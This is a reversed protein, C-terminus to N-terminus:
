KTSKNLRAWIREAARASAGRDGVAARVQALGQLMATRGPGDALLPRAAEAIEKAGRQILEPVIKRNLILNPLSIFPTKVVRKAIAYTIPSLRYVVVMPAGVLACELSATGSAAVVVRSKEMAKQAEGDIIEINVNKANIFKQLFQESIGPARPVIFKLNNERNLERATETLLPMIRSIEGQRSGPLLAVVDARPEYTGPALHDLVPSGVYHANIGHDRYFKEEFPLILLAEDITERLKGVRKKGWAWAKPPIYYVVPINLAKAASAMMLNFGGYDVPVFLDPPDTKFKELLKRKARAVAPLKTAAEMIGMVAIDESRIIIEAGTAKLADGGIAWVRIEPCLKRLALIMNAAHIDGSTEGATVAITPM